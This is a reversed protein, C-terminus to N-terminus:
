SANGLHRQHHHHATIAVKRLRGEEALEASAEIQGQHGRVSFCCTVRVALTVYTSATLHM